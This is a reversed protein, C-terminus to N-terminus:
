LTFSWSIFFATSTLLYGVALKRQRKTDLRYLDAVETDSTDNYIFYSENHRRNHIMSLVAFTTGGAGLLWPKSKVFFDDLNGSTTGTVKQELFIKDKNLFEEPIYNEDISVLAKGKLKKLSKSSYNDINIVSSFSNNNIVFENNINKQISFVTNFLYYINVLENPLFKDHSGHIWKSNFYEEGRITLNDCKFKIDKYQCTIFPLNSFTKDNEWINYIFSSIKDESATYLGTSDIFLVEDTVLTVCDNSFSIQVLSILLIILKINKM